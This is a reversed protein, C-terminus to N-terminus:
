LIDFTRINVPNGEQWDAIMLQTKYSADEERVSAYVFSENGNLFGIASYISKSGLNLRKISTGEVVWIDTPMFTQSSITRNHTRSYIISSLTNSLLLSSEDAKSNFSSVAESDNYFTIPQGQATLFSLSLLISFFVIINSFMNKYENIM